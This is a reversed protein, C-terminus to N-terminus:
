QRAILDLRDSGCYPEGNDIMFPSGFVGKGIAEAYEADPASM